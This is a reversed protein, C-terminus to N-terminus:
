RTALHVVFQFIGFRFAQEISPIIVLVMARENIDLAINPKM